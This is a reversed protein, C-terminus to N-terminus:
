STSTAPVRDRAIWRYVRSAIYLGGILGLINAAAEVDDFVERSDTFSSLALVGGIQLAMALGKGILGFTFFALVVALVKRVITM